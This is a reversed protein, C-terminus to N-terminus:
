CGFTKKVELKLNERTRETVVGEGAETEGSRSAITFEVKTIVSEIKAIVADGETSNSEFLGSCVAEHSAGVASPVQQFTLM